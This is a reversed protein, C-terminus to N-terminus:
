RAAAAPADQGGWLVAIQASASFENPLKKSKDQTQVTNTAPTTQVALDLNVHLFEFGVGGTLATKAGSDAVNKSLGARLPINLWSRNFVNVETGLGFQRSKIGEVATLNNTLDLDAALNWFHLPTIAAGLRVGGQLSYRSPLGAAIAADPNKFKPDNIDRAALGIRPKWRANTFTRNIDWLLGADVAPQFTTRSSNKFNSLAGNGPDSAIISQNQFGVKGVIGKLAAGASLGPAFPLEHGYALGFETASIGRLQLSSTNNAVTAQTNNAMDIIPKAGVDTLNTVFVSFRGIKVAAGAGLDGRVGNKPDNLEVLANQINAQTCGAAGAACDKNVQNLDKAGRLVSGSAAFHGGVPIQVGSRSDAVGLLAPNWYASEAGQPVAVGAGGMGMARPGLATWETANAWGSTLCAATVLLLYQRM